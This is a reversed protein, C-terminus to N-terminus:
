ARSLLFHPANFGEHLIDLSYGAKMVEMIFMAEHSLLNPSENANTVTFTQLSSKGKFQLFTQFHRLKQIDTPSNRYNKMMVPYPKLIVKSFLVRFTNENMYNLDGRIIHDQKANDKM